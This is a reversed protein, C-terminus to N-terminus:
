LTPIELRLPAELSFQYTTIMRSYNNKLTLKICNEAKDIQISALHEIAKTYDRVLGLAIEPFNANTRVINAIRKHQDRRIKPIEVVEDNLSIVKGLSM